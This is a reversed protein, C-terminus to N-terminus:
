KYLTIRLQVPLVKWVIVAPNSEQLIKIIVPLFNELRRYSQIAEKMCMKPVKCGVKGTRCLSGEHEEIYFHSRFFKVIKKADVSDYIEANSANVLVSPLSEIPEDKQQRKKKM